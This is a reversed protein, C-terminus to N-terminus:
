LVGGEAAIDYDRWRDPDDPVDEDDDVPACSFEAGTGCTVGLIVLAVLGAIVLELADAILDLMYMTM